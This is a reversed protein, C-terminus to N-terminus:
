NPNSLDSRPETPMARPVERWNLPAESRWEHTLKGNEWYCAWVDSWDSDLRHMRLDKFLRAVYGPGSDGRMSYSHIAAVLYPEGEGSGLYGGSTEVIEAVCYTSHFGEYVAEKFQELTAGKLLEGELYYTKTNGM